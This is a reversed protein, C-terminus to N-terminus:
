YLGGSGNTLGGGDQPQQQPQQQPLDPQATAGQDANAPVLVVGSGQSSAQGQGIVQGNAPPEDGPKFAELIVGKDGFVGRRGSNVSIPILEIGRPVRFPVAAKGRLALTMFDAVVPAALEGGTRGTGMPKPNDFGIYTGVVLDPTFGIFWADKEDNTTGTKGAIPKGVVQLKRGTGREVVGEMMSTIQYATYSNMVQERDDPLDPEALGPTYKDVKCATCDRTDHRYITRGFRDQIRDILTADVKKGGNAIVAYATTMKLLTTEGAGLAMALEHPMRDYIGLREALDAVKTIGMADALRVTMTNRSQEIARRLTSPGFFDKEYNKPKWVEGHPMKIELPADLVVSAPSYGNDLAAAYVIPKFSSGPQRMAQVARNFQSQGYSFGGVMALVRGTHPDMVVMAGQVDPLQLLHYENGNGSPAVYIVDGPQLVDTAKKVEPGLKVGDVYKRAWQVLNLPVYGQDREPGWKGDAMVKPQLGVNAGAEDVQLVVAVRWPQQDPPIHYKELYREWDGSLDTVHTLPGRWGRRRDFGILGRAVAQRAFIQLKPDLTTRVSYGSRELEDKGYKAILERRAEEAFSEASFLQAGFPRPNVKLPKAIAANLQDQSIYGNELMQNLVYNRREIARDYHTFPNYNNPGKPLAALYAVEELSLEDLPKGFYNLSAAAIGYSNFGLFIDNLYLELIQDKSFSTEIRQVILAEKLKRSMTRENSLLFNKAVQQTITSAGVVQGHGSLKVQVYRIAAKAIGHWDLGAHTYFNKDEASVYAEIVLKPILNVPVFLRRQQAYEALLSGDSAHMRTMVPPEWSALAKYDPLDKSVDWIIYLAAGALAIAIVFAAGFLWGFFRLM